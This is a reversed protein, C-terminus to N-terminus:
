IRPDSFFSSDHSALVKWRYVGLFAPNQQLPRFDPDPHHQLDDLRVRRVEGAQTGEPGTDYVLMPGGDVDPRVFAMAHDPQSHAGGRAFFILDGPRALGPDRGVLECSYTRLFAGKAFPQWGEPTPFARRWPGGSAVDPTGTVPPATFGVRTRWAETHPGWAEHFAFRLLGACDRQAPEWAPSPAEVQQELLAVFWRRFAERDGEDRLSSQADVANPHLEVSRHFRPWASIEVKVASVPALFFGEEGGGWWAAGQLKANWPPRRLGLLSRSELALHQVPNGPNSELNLSNRIPLFAAFGILAVLTSLASIKANM